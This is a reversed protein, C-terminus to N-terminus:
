PISVESVPTATTRAAVFVPLLALAAVESEAEVTWWLEHGGSRCSGITSEHRIPSEYGRFSAFVIGCDQPDHRHQLLYHFV